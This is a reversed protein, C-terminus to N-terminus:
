QIKCFFLCIPSSFFLLRNNNCNKLNKIIIILRKEPKHSFITTYCSHNTYENKFRTKKKLVILFCSEKLSISFYFLYSKDGYVCELLLFVYQLVSPSAIDITNMVGSACFMASNEMTGIMNRVVSAVDNTADDCSM